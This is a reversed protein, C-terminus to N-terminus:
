SWTPKRKELYYKDVNDLFREDKMGTRNFLIVSGSELEPYIRMECYYGGGGGAPAFYVNGNLEGKIWSLCM